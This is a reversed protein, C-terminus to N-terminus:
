LAFAWAKVGNKLSFSCEVRASCAIGAVLNKLDSYPALARAAESFSTFKAEHV